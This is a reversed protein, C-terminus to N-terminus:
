INNWVGSTVTVLNACMRSVSILQRMKRNPTSGNLLWYCYVVFEADFCLCLMMCLAVSGLSISTVQVTSTLHTDYSLSNYVTRTSGQSSYFTYVTKITWQMDWVLLCASSLICDFRHSQELSRFITNEYSLHDRLVSSNCRSNCKQSM